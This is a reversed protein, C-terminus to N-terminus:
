FYSQCIDARTSTDIREIVYSECKSMGRELKKRRPVRHNKANQSEDCIMCCFVLALDPFTSSVICLM